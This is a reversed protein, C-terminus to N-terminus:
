LLGSGSSEQSCDPHLLSERPWPDTPKIDTRGTRANIPLTANMGDFSVVLDDTSWVKAFAKHLEPQSRRTLYM